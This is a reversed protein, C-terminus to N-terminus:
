RSSAPRLEDEPFVRAPRIANPQEGARRTPSAQARPAATQIAPVPGPFPFQEPISHSPLGQLPPCLGGPCAPISSSNRVAVTHYFTPRPLEVPVAGTDDSAFPQSVCSRMIPEGIFFAPVYAFFRMRGGQGGNSVAVPAVTGGHDVDRNERMRQPPPLSIHWQEAIM